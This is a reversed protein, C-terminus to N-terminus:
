GRSINRAETDLSTREDLALDVPGLYFEDVTANRAVGSYWLVGWIYFFSAHNVILREIM